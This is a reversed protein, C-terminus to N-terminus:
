ALNSSNKSIKWIPESNLFIPNSKVGRGKETNTERLLDADLRVNLFCFDTIVVKINSTVGGCWRCLCVCVCESVKRFNM